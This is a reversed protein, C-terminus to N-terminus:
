AKLMEEDQPSPLLPGTPHPRLHSTSPASPRVFGDGFAETLPKGPLDDAIPLGLLRCHYLTPVEITRRAARCCPGRRARDWSTFLIGPTRGTSAQAAKTPRIQNRLAVARLRHDSAVHHALFRRAPGPDRRPLADVYRYVGEVLGRDRELHPPKRPSSEPEALNWSYHLQSALDLRAPLYLM